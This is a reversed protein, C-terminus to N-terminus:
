KIKKVSINGKMSRLIIAAKGENLTTFIYKDSTEELPFDFNLRGDLTEAQIKAGAEPELFLTIDGKETMLTIEDNDRLDLVETEIDGEGVSAEISGSFNSIKLNGRELNIRATGYLDRIIVEGEKLNIEDLNINKPVNLAIKIPFVSKKRGEIRIKLAAELNEVKVQPASQRLGGTIVGRRYFPLSQSAVIRVEDEKQGIIEIEAEIEEVELDIKGGSSLKYRHDFFVQGFWDGSGPYYPVFVLACSALCILSLSTIMIRIILAQRMEKGM